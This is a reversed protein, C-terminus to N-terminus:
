ITMLKLQPITIDSFTSVFVLDAVVAKTPESIYGREDVSYATATSIGDFIQEYPVTSNVTITVDGDKAKIAVAESTPPQLNFQNLHVM